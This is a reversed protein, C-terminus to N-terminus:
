RADRAVEQLVRLAVQRLTGQGTATLSAWVQRPTIEPPAAAPPASSGPRHRPRQPQSPASRPM